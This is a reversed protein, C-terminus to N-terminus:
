HLISILRLTIKIKKTSSVNIRPDYYKEVVMMSMAPISYDFERIDEDELQDTHENLKGSRIKFGNVYIFEEDPQTSPLNNSSIKVLQLQLDLM